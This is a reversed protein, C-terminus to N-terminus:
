TLMHTNKKRPSPLKHAMSGNHQIHRQRNINGTPSPQPVDAARKGSLEAISNTPQKVDWYSALTDWPRILGFLNYTCGCQSLLQPDFKRGRGTVTYRASAFGALWLTSGIIGPAQCPLWHPDFKRGRRRAICRFCDCYLTSVCLWGTVANVRHHWAGSILLYIVKVATRTRDTLFFFFFFFSFFNEHFCHHVVQVFAPFVCGGDQKSTLSRGRWRANSRAKSGSTTYAVGSWSSNNRWQRANVLMRRAPCRAESSVRFIGMSFVLGAEGSDSAKVMLGVLRDLFSPLPSGLALPASHSRSLCPPSRSFPIHFTSSQGKLRCPSCSCVSGPSIGGRRRLRWVVHLPHVSKRVSGTTM